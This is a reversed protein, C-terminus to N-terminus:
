GKSTAMRKGAVPSEVMLMPGEQEYLLFSLLGLELALFGLALPMMLWGAADHITTPSIWPALVGTATIRLVNSLLAIPIASLVIVVREWTRRQIVIATAVSIALFSVAMRLGNCAQAVELRTDPLQITSGEAVALLGFTQLLYCSAKTAIRQLPDSLMIEMRYPFPIMFILFGIAAASWGLMKWGGALLALGGLAILLSIHELWEFYFYVGALRCLIGFLLVAVGWWSTELANWNVKARRLWLLAVAFAPVLFGHSYQPDRWWIGVLQQWTPHYVWTVAAAAVALWIISRQSM